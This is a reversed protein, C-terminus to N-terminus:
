VHARGIEPFFRGGHGGRIVAANDRYASLVNDGSVENTNRIMQFLSRPQQVGDITWTANFIKHRCHESNAQAFMYLEVDTPNRGLRTFEEVLYDIEDPALSLGLARDAAAIAAAGLTLVDIHALQKQERPAFLAHLEDASEFFVSETMRDHLAGALARVDHAGPIRVVRAREIREIAAFGTNHLIDTAKSSWPSQTGVRPGIWVCPGAPMGVGAGLLQALRQHDIASESDTRLLLLYLYSAEVASVDPDMARLTAAMRAAEFTTLASPGPLVRM